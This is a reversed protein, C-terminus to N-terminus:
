QCARDESCKICFSLDTKKDILVTIPEGMIAPTEFLLRLNNGEDQVVTPQGLSEIITTRSAPSKLGKCKKFNLFGKANSPYHRRGAILIVILIIVLLLFIRKM